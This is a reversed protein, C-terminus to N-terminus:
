EDRLHKDILKGVACRQRRLAERRSRCGAALEDLHAARAADHARELLEDARRLLTEAADIAQM